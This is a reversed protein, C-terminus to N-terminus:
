GFEHGFSQLSNELNANVLMFSFDVGLLKDTLVQLINKHDSHSAQGRELAVSKLVLWVWIVDLFGFFVNVENELLEL